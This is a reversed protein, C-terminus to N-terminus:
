PTIVKKRKVALGDVDMMNFISGTQSASQTRVKQLSGGEEIVELKKVNFFDNMIFGTVGVEAGIKLVGTCVKVTEVQVVTEGWSGSNDVVVPTIIIM